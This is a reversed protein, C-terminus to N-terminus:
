GRKGHLPRMAPLGSAAASSVYDDLGIRLLAYAAATNGDVHRMAGSVRSSLRALQVGSALVTELHGRAHQFLDPRGSRVLAEVAAASTEDRALLLPLTLALAEPAQAAMAEAALRRVDRDGSALGGALAEANAQRWEDPPAWRLAQRLAERRVEVVGDGLCAILAE